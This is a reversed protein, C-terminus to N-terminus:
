LHIERTSPQIEDVVRHGTWGGIVASMGGGLGGARAILFSEPYFKEIIDPDTPEAGQAIGGVGKLMQDRPRKMAEWLADTLRQRDWGHSKLLEYHDPGIVLLAGGSVTKPARPHTVNWLAVAMATTLEQPTRAALDFFLSPGEGHFVTVASTGRAVGRSEALSEWNPDTEDEAFCFTYKGPNGFVARDIEQPLGGGVNRVILQLARGITANARNGQGFVNGAWNMGIRKTIPGNVVIVPGASHLTCLLGHMSFNEDLVADVAALVVPLYEPKCGAMVANIAVKEVTCPNLNPPILGVIEQPDRDTGTLMRAVRVATPPVVPLGDSWGRDYAVEVPDDLPSVNITRARLDLDGCLVALREPMGPEVNLAGCGPQMQPLDEGLGIIGTLEQWANREWGEVRGTEKDDDLRIVTPVTHIKLRHSRELTTDHERNTVGKPFTPDDQTYVVLSASKDLTTLLPEVLECTPCERKVVAVYTSAM